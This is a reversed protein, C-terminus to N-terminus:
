IIEGIEFLLDKDDEHLDIVWRKESTISGDAMILGFIYAKDHSDLKEFFNRKLFKSRFGTRKIASCRRSCSPATNRLQSLLKEFEKDCVECTYLAKAGYM